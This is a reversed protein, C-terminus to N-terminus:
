DFSESIKISDYFKEADNYTKDLFEKPDKYQSHTTTVEMMLPFSADLPRILEIIKEFEIFGEGLTVHDVLYKIRDSLHIATLRNARRKLLEFSRPGDIQDHSSDYCFGFYESPTQDLITEMFDTAVGPLVNELAFKVGTDRSLDTFFPIKQNIDRRRDELTVSSFTFSSCHLVVTPANLYVAAAVVKENVELADSKDMNYGHITDVRLNHEALASKLNKLRDSDFIGSHEYNGGISVHSFGASKIMPIQKEIPILYDFCTSISINKM